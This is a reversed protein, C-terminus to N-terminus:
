AAMRRPIADYYIRRLEATSWRLSTTGVTIRLESNPATVTGAVAFPVGHEAALARVTHVAAPDFSVVARAGDEGYLFGEPSVGAPLAFQMGAGRTAQAYPGGVVAEALAVALGGDACDHASRLLRAKAAAVLFRQLQPARRRPRM